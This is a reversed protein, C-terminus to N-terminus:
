IEFQERGGVETGMDINRRIWELEMWSSLTIKQTAKVQDSGREETSEFPAIEQWVWFM